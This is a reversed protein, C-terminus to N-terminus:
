HVLHIHNGNETLQLLSSHGVNRGRGTRFANFTAMSSAELKPDSSVPFPHFTNHGISCCADAALCSTPDGCVHHHPIEVQYHGVCNVNSPQFNHNIAQLHSARHTPRRPRAGQPERRPLPPCTTAQFGTRRSDTPWHWPGHQFGKSAGVHPVLTAIETPRGTTMNLQGLQPLTMTPTAPSELHPPVRKNTRQNPATLRATKAPANKHGSSSTASQTLSRKDACNTPLWRATHRWPQGLATDNCSIVLPCTSLTSCRAIWASQDM